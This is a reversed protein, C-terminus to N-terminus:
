RIYHVALAGQLRGNEKFFAASRKSMSRAQDRASYLEKPLYKAHMLVVQLRVHLRERRLQFRVRSRLLTFFSPM